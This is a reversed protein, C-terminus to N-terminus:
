IYHSNFYVVVWRFHGMHVFERSGLHSTECRSDSRSPSINRFCKDPVVKWEMQMSAFLIWTIFAINWQIANFVSKTFNRHWGVKDFMAARWQLWTNKINEMTETQKIMRKIPSLFAASCWHGTLCHHHCSTMIHCCRSSMVIVGFTCYFGDLSELM